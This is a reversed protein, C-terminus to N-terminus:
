RKAEGKTEAFRGGGGYGGGGAGYVGSGGKAEAGAGAGFGMGMMGDGGGMGIGMGMDDTGANMGDNMFHQNSKFESYLTFLVHLSEVLSKNGGGGKDHVPIDLMVCIYKAYEALDMEMDPGPLQGGMEKLAEEFEEPWVQMLPEIEPMERTYNVQMPPKSRHLDDISDIWRQIDKPNKSPNDISRINAEGHQKKSVARMQLELVTSDSQRAAPEDVVKLGLSADVGDPRPVKLFADIQGVSPIYDPIFCKMTSELEVDTPKYRGIYQFLEKVESSVNLREYEKSDYAGASAAGAASAGAGGAKAEEKSQSEEEESSSEDSDEQAAAKPPSKKRPSPNTEVSSEDESLDMAELAEDFPMNKVERDKGGSPKREDDSEEESSEESDLLDDEESSSEESDAMKGRQQRQNYSRATIGGAPQYM